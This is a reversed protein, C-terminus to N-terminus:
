RINVMFIDYNGTRNGRESRVVMKYSINDGQRGLRIPATIATKPFNVPRGDVELIDYESCHVLNELDFLVKRKPSVQHQAPPIMQGKAHSSPLVISLKQSEM